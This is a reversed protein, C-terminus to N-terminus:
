VNIPLHEASADNVDRTRPGLPAFRQPEKGAIVDRGRASDVYLRGQVLKGDKIKFIFLHENRMRIGDKSTGDTQVPVVVTDGCPLIERAEYYFSKWEKGVEQWFAIYNDRGIYKGGYPLSDTMEFEFDESLLAVLPGADNKEYGTYALELARLIESTIM